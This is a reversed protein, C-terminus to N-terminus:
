RKLSNKKLEQVTVKREDDMETAKCIENNILIYEKNLEKYRHYNEIEQKLKELRPGPQYSRIITKNTWDDKISYSYIPGHGPHGKSKCICKAKGCKQYRISLSGSRMIGLQKIALQIELRRKQLENLNM